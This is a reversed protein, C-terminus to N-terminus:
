QSLIQPLNSAPPMSGVQVVLPLTLLYKEKESMFWIKGMIEKIKMRMKIM